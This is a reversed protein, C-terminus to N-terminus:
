IDRMIRWGRAKCLWIDKNPFQLYDGVCMSTHGIEKATEQISEQMKVNTNLMAFCFRAAQMRGKQTNKPEKGNIKVDIEIMFRSAAPYFVLNADNLTAYANRNFDQYYVKVKMKVLGM